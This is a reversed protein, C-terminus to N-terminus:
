KNNENKEKRGFVSFNVYRKPNERLDILLKDTNQSVHNLNQYLSDDNTLAGLTGEGRNIKDLVANLNRMSENAKNVAEALELANLKDGFTNLKLIIPDFKQPYDVLSAMLRNLNSMSNNINGQNQSLTSKLNDTIDKFNRLSLAINEKEENLRILLSDTHNLVSNVNAIVPNTKETLEAVMSQTIKSVLTDGSQLPKSLNGIELAIMKGGLLGDDSLIAKTGKGLVLDSRIDMTVLLKHNKGQLIQISKVKGVQLGNLKVQNSVTLGSVNDYVAYYYRTHSIFDTGKLFNFGTYLLIAAVLALLGIRVEKTM